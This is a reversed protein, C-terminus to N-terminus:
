DGHGGGMRKIVGQLMTEVHQAWALRILEAVTLAWVSCKKGQSARAWWLNDGDEARGYIWEPPLAEEVAVRVNQVQVM